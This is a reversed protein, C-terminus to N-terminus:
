LCQKVLWCKVLCSLEEATLSLICPGGPPGATLSGGALAPPLNSGQGASVGCALSCGSGTLWLQGAQARSGPLRSCLLWQPLPGLVWIVLSSGGKAAALSLREAMFLGGCDFFVLYINKLFGFFFFYMLFINFM